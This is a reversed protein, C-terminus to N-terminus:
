RVCVTVTLTAPKLEHAAAVFTGSQAEVRISLLGSDLFSQHPVPDIPITIKPQAAFTGLIPISASPDGCDTGILSAGPGDWPTGPDGDTRRCWDAGSYDIGSTGEVWDTRVPRALLVGAGIPCTGNGGCGPNSEVRELSLSLTTAPNYLVAAEAPASLQFSFLGVCAGLNVTEFTGAVNAGNCAGACIETDAIASFFHQECGADAGGDVGGAGAGGGPADSGGSGDGWSADISGGADGGRGGDLSADPLESGSAAPYDEFSVLCNPALALV